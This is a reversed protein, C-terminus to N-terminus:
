ALITKMATPSSLPEQCGRLSVTSDANGPTLARHIGTIDHPQVIPVTRSHPPRNAERVPWTYAPPAIRWRRLASTQKTVKNDTDDVRSSDNTAKLLPRCCKELAQTHRQVWRFVTTHDVAVGFGRLSLQDRYRWFVVLCVVDTPSELYHFLIGTRENFVRRRDRRRFRRSGPISGGGEPSHNAWFAVVM